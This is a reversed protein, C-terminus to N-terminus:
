SPLNPTTQLGCDKEAEEGGDRDQEGEPSEDRRKSRALVFLHLKRTAWDLVVKGELSLRIFELITPPVLDGHLCEVVHVEITFYVEIAVTKLHELVSMIPCAESKSDAEEFEHEETECRLHNHM